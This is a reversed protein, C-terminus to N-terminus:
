LYAASHCFGRFNFYKFEIVLSCYHLLYFETKARKIEFTYVELDLSSPVKTTDSAFLVYSRSPPGLATNKPSQKM